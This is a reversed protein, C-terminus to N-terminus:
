GEYRLTLITIDDAQPAGAAFRKVDTIVGNMIETISTNNNLKQLLQELRPDTYLNDKVDMAETVGDTYLFMADGKQLQLKANEFPMEEMVALGMGGTKKLMEVTGDKRLIFPLNHGGNGYEVEGTKINLVGYFVTVFLTSVNEKCLLDNVIELVDGPQGGLLATAKLMTRSVAMFLAAPMGKGSVDAMVFGLRDNDILFFDYFDGGVDKAAIMEACIGFEKIHPFPNNADPLIAHQIKSATDLDRKIAKVYAEVLENKVQLDGLIKTKIFASTIHEKLNKLLGFDNEDFANGKRNNELVLFGEIKEQVKVVMVARSQNLEVEDSTELSYIDQFVEQTNKLYYEEAEQLSYNAERVSDWGLQAKTEYQNTEANLVLLEAQQVGRIIRKTKELISQLMESFNIQANISKVITNIKELEDNKNALEASALEIEEKQHVVESTREEIIRELERKEKESKQLRWRVSLWLLGGGFLVYLSYAWWTKFWPLLIEFKYTAEEGLQGHINKARVHFTYKGTPLNTYEKQFNKSPESWNEDFGELFYQYINAAPNDYTAAAYEFIITNRNYPLLPIFESNQTLYPLKNEDFYSGDFLVSDPNLTVRRIFTPYTFSYNKSVTQEYRIVGDPGGFWLVSSDAFVAWITTTAISLFPTQQKRYTAIGNTTMKRYFTLKKDDGATTWVNGIEDQIIKSFWESRFSSDLSNDPVFINKGSDFKMVGSSTPFIAKGDLLAVHNGLMAPLKHTTDFKSITPRDSGSLPARFRIIGKTLTPIWLWGDNDEEIEHLEGFQCPIAGSNVWGSKTLQLISVQNKEGVYVISPNTRSRYLSFPFNQSSIKHISQKEVVFVGETTAALLGKETPLISWCTSAIGPTPAFKGDKEDLYYLGEYTAFYLFGNCRVIDTVGGNPGQTENLFTLPSPVEVRSLGNNLALWLGGQKDAFLYRVSENLLGSSKTVITQLNGNKDIIIIGNRSTGFAYKGDSLATGETMRLSLIYSEANSHLATLSQGDYLYFGKNTTVILMMSRNSYPVISAIELGKLSFEGHTFATFHGNDIVFLEWNRHQVILKDNCYFSSIIEEESKIVQIKSNSWLFIAQNTVFCVGNKTVFVRWVDLFDHENKDLYRLLSIFTTLGNSDPQLYGFDGRAGVYIRGTATDCAVSRVISHNPTAITRWSAGDHELIGSTNAVYMMGRKDQAIGFNQGHAQYRAPTYNRVAPFGPNHTVVRQSTSQGQTNGYILLFLLLLRTARYFLQITNHVM